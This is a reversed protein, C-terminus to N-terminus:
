ILEQQKPGHKLMLVALKAELTAETLQEATPVRNECLMGLREDRRYAFEYEYEAPTMLIREAMTPHARRYAM